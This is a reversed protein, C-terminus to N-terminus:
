TTPTIQLLPEAEAIPVTEEFVAQLASMPQDVLPRKFVWVGADIATLEWGLKGLANARSEVDEQLPNGMSVLKYEWARTHTESGPEDEHM